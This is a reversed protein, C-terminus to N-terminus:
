YAMPSRNDLTMKNSNFSLATDLLNDATSNQSFSRNTSLSLGKRHLQKHMMSKMLLTQYIPSTKKAENNSERDSLTSQSVHIRSTTPEVSIVPLSEKIGYDLTTNFIDDAQLQKGECKLSPKEDQTIFKFSSKSQDNSQKSGALSFGTKNFYDENPTGSSILPNPRFWTAAQHEPTPKLYNINSVLMMDKSEKLPRIQALRLKISTGFDGKHTLYNMSKSENIGGRRLQKEKNFTRIRSEKDQTFVFKMKDARYSDPAKEPLNSLYNMQHHEQQTDRIKEFKEEVQSAVRIRFRTKQQQQQQPGPCLTLSRKHSKEKETMSILEEKISKERTTQGVVEQKNDLIATAKSQKFRECKPSLSLRYNSPFVTGNKSLDEIEDKQQSFRKKATNTPNEGIEMVSIREQKFENYDQSFTDDELIANEFLAEGKPLENNSQCTSIRFTKAQHKKHNIREPLSPTSRIPSLSSQPLSTNSQVNEKTSTSSERLLRRNFTGMTAKNIAHAMNVHKRLFKETQQVHKGKSELESVMQQYIENRQKKKM